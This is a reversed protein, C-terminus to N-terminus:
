ITFKNELYENYTPYRGRIERFKKSWKDNKILVKRKYHIKIKRLFKLFSYNINGFIRDLYLYSNKIPYIKASIIHNTYYKYHKILDNFNKKNNDSLIRIALFKTSLYDVPEDTSYGHSNKEWKTLIAYSM